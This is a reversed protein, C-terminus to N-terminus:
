LKLNTSFYFGEDQLNNGRDDLDILPPAYDLRINFLPTVQWLVGVGVGILFEQDPRAPNNPNDATNWVTGLDLFPAIQVIPSGRGDRAIAIRDEVSFRLGNDGSRANQRFGRVSQGGGIVFQESPLLSNPTLQGEIVAM